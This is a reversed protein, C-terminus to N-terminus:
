WRLKRYANLQSAYDDIISKGAELNGVATTDFSTSQDGRSVSKVSPDKAEQGYGESRYMDAAMRIIVRELGAPIEIINCYNMVEDTVTDLVFKLLGDKEDGTIGLILKLSQMM